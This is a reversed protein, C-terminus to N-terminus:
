IIVKKKNKYDWNRGILFEFLEKKNELLIKKNMYMIWVLGGCSVMILVFLLFKLVYLIMLMFWLTIFLLIKVTSLSYKSAIPEHKNFKHKSNMTNFFEKFTKAKRSM